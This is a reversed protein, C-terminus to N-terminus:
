AGSSAPIYLTLKDGFDHTIGRTGEQGSRWACCIAQRRRHSIGRNRAKVCLSLKTGTRLDCGLADYQSATLQHKKRVPCRRCFRVLQTGTRRVEYRIAFRRFLFAAGFTGLDSPPVQFKMPFYPGSGGPDYMGNEPVHPGCPVHCYRYVTTRDETDDTLAGWQRAFAALVRPPEPDIEALPIFEEV